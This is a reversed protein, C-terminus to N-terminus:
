QKDAATLIFVEVSRLKMVTFAQSKMILKVSPQVIQLQGRSKLQKQSHASNLHLRLLLRTAGTQEPLNTRNHQLMMKEHAGWM